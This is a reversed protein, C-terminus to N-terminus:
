MLELRKSRCGGNWISPLKPKAEAHGLAQNLALDRLVAELNDQQSRATASSQFFPEAVPSRVRPPSFTSRDQCFPLTCAVAVAVRGPLNRNMCWPLFFSRAM